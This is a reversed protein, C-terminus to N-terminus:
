ERELELDDKLKQLYDAESVMEKKFTDRKKAEFEMLM